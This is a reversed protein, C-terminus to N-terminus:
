KDTKIPLTNPNKVMMRTLIRDAFEPKVRLPISEEERTVIMKIGRGEKRSVCRSIDTWLIHRVKQRGHKYKLVVGDKELVIFHPFARHVISMLVLYAVVVLMVFVVMSIPSPNVFSSFLGLSIGALIVLLLSIGEHFQVEHWEVEDSIGETGDDKVGLESSCVECFVNEGSIRGGCKRCKMYITQRSVNVGIEGLSGLFQDVSTLLNKNIHRVSGKGTPKSLVVSIHDEEPNRSVEKIDRAGFVEGRILVDTGRISFGKWANWAESWWEVSYVTLLAIIVWILCVETWISVPIGIGSVYNPLLAVVSVVVLIVVISTFLIPRLMM